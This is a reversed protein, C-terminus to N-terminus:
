CPIYTKILWVPRRLWFGPLGGAQTKQERAKVQAQQGTRQSVPGRESSHDRLFQMASQRVIIAAPCLLVM